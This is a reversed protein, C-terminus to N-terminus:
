KADISELRQSAIRHWREELESGLWRIQNGQANLKECCAGLTGSGHFPDYVTGCYAGQENKPCYAKIIETILAEPKQTPHETRENKFRSGALTPYDWIDGRLAGDPNPVWIKKKGDKGKYYVPNKLREASKYPVRVDDANYTWKKPSKSYWLFPEYTHAPAKKSRTFGNDYHWINMRRYHLGVERMIVQLFGIYDHIGFWILSGAPALLQSCLAIRERNVEIFEDFGLCDSDNGFDKNLNYPPDTLILDFTIGESIMRRMFGNSDVNYTKNFEISM